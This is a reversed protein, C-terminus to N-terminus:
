VYRFRIEELDFIYEVIGTTPVRVRLIDQETPIYGPASIRELDSLYSSFLVRRKRKVGRFKWSTFLRM